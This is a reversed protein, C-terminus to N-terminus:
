AMGGLHGDPRRPGTRRAAVRAALLVLGLTTLAAEISLSRWQFDRLSSILGTPGIHYQYRKFPWLWYVRGRNLRANLADCGLHVGYGVGWSLGFARGQTAWALATSWLWFLGSHAPLRDNPTLRLVWRLPKDVLDPFMAAHWLGRRELGPTHSVLYAAALHGPLIVALGGFADHGHPDLGHL